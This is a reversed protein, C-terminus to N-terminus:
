QTILSCSFRKTRSLSLYLYISNFNYKIKFAYFLRSCKNRRSSFMTFPSLSRYEINVDIDWVNHARSFYRNWSKWSIKLNMEARDNSSLKLCHVKDAHNLKLKLLSHNFDFQTTFIKHSRQCHISILKELKEEQSKRSHPIYLLSLLSDSIFLIFNGDGNHTEVFVFSILFNFVRPHWDWVNAALEFVIKRSHTLSFHQSSNRTEVQCM